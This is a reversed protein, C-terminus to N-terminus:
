RCTRDAPVGGAGVRRDGAIMLHNLAPYLKIAVNKRNGLRQKWVEYDKMSVQYDRGGQIILIPLTLKEATAPAEYRHIRAWYALPAGLLDAEPDELKGSRVQEALKHVEALQEEAGEAQQQDVSAIHALQDEVLDIVPRAPGAMLIIGRLDHCRQGIYPAALGGLSHGLVFVRKADIRKDQVLLRAASIADDITEWELTIKDAAIAAGYKHTRKEYRLVAVGQSSLGWALDRFPKNPGVTEDPDHPGSGHVLVLGPHPGDGAPITLKGPLEFEGTKVTIDEETFKARDVYAPPEYPVNLEAAVIIFGALENEANFVFKFTVVGREFRAKLFAAEYAAVTETATSAVTQYPGYKFNLGAWLQACQQASLAKRVVEDGAAVFDDYKEAVLLAWLDRARQEATPPEALASSTWVALLPLALWYRCTAFTFRRPHFPRSASM